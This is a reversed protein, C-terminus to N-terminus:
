YVICDKSKLYYGLEKLKNLNGKEDVTVVYSQKTEPCNNYIMVKLKYSYKAKQFGNGKSDSDIDYGNIRAILFAEYENDIRGIFEKLENEDQVFNWKNNEIYLIRYNCFSPQCGTFFGGINENKPLLIKKSLSQNGKSFIKNPTFGTIYDIQWYEINSNPEIQKLLEKDSRFREPLKEFSENCSILSFLIVEFFLIQKIM